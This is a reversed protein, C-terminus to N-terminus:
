LLKMLEARKANYEEDSLVGADKLEKIEKLRQAPSRTDAPPAAPAPEPPRQQHQQQNMFQQAMGFGMGMGMGGLANGAGGGGGGGKAMGEAAGLMAQGQAYQQFGGALRSYAVDKGLKKLTAEDEEKISVHFNGMRVVTLGYGDVHPKLGSIVETEIEETYAGSTVDLLPWRKKVLLEAIRDRTVKLVQNKFWGLLEDNGTRGMGVLGVVLREPDTVRISFDGYVMTGIGLGTEPDRVDGIPGGFKVGAFERTSVFFIESIFLNGGTFGEILRSLFPINNTDLSHRGPGLKGEVKGDKVFLAVEDADVTLQTLMRVNNEPYKYIIDGKASDARAIFNRKAEGKISDFIGM